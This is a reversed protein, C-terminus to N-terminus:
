YPPWRPIWYPRCRFNLSMIKSSEKVGFINPYANFDCKSRGKKLTTPLLIHLIAAMNFNLIAAVLPTESNSGLQFIIRRPDGVLTGIKM